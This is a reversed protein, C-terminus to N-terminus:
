DDGTAATSAVNAQMYCKPLESTAGIVGGQVVVIALGYLVMAVVIVFFGNYLSVQGKIYVLDM